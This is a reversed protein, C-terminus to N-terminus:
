NGFTARATGPRIGNSGVAKGRLSKGVSPKTGESAIRDLIIPVLVEAWFRNALANPHGEGPVRLRDTLPLRGDLSDIAHQKLFARYQHYGPPNAQLFIVIFEAGNKRCTEKMQLLLKETVVRKQRTRSSLRWKLLSAQALTLLASHERLSFFPYHTPPHRTLTGNHQITCYPVAVTKRTQLAYEALMRLHSFAAVNRNEHDDFFGYIVLDPAPSQTTLHELLLLSQYTGYGDCGFNRIDAEPLMEQLQWAFTDEDSLARGYTLSGGLLLVHYPGGTKSSPRTIREGNALFTTIVPGTLDSYGPHVHRGPMNKWGLGADEMHM